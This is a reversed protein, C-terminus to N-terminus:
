TCTNKNVNNPVYLVLNHQNCLSSMMSYSPLKYLKTKTETVVHIYHEKDVM